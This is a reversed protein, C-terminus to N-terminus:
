CMKSSKAVREQEKEKEAKEREVREPVLKERTGTAAFPLHAAGFANLIIQEVPSVEDSNTRDFRLPERLSVPPNTLFRPVGSLNQSSTHLLFPHCLVVDGVKGTVEVFESCEQILQRFPIDNPLVGEPHAAFFRAVCAISDPAVFTGGGQSNIDSWLVLVLLGQEPSDLYHRFFDGDKHWGGVAASPAQWPKAAGDSFNVILADSWRYPTQIRDAGGLLDCIAAWAKPAFDACDFSTLSPMHVRAKEWTAPDNKEYGLRIFARDTIEQAADRSFCDSVVLFGRQVFEDTQDPTLSTPAPM